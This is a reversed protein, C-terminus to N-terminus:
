GNVVANYVDTGLLEEFQPWVDTRFKDQMATFEEDTPVYVEWGDAEMDAMAQNEVDERENALEVSKEYFVDQMITQYEEPLANFTDMNIIISIIEMNYRADCFYNLVDSFNLHNVYASGGFWGDCVGTQLASYLDAYALSTTPYNMTKTILVYSDESPIRCLTDGHSNSPDMPSTIPGTAGIGQYGDLFTGLYKVNNEEHISAFAQYWASEPNVMKDRADDWNTTLYPFTKMDIRKDFSPPSSICGMDITGAMIEEFTQTFDGLQASPYITFQIDGNTQATIEDCAEQLKITDVHQENEQATVRFNYTAEVDTYDNNSNNDEANTSNGEDRTITNDDSCGTLLLTSMMLVALILAFYKKM